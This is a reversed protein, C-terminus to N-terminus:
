QIGRLLERAADVVAHGVRFVGARGTSAAFRQQSSDSAPAGIRLPGYTKPSDPDTTNPVVIEVAFVPPRSENGSDAM